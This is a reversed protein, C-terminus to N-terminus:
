FGTGSGDGAAAPGVYKIDSSFAMVPLLFIAFSIMAALWVSDSKGYSRSLDILVAPLAVIATFPIILLVIWWVPRGVIELIVINNYIPIFGAWFPRGAKEFIKGYCLSIFVYLVLALLLVGILVGTVIGGDQMPMSEFEEM